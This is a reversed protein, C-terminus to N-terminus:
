QVGLSSDPAWDDVHPDGERVRDDGQHLGGPNGHQSAIDVDGALMTDIGERVLAEGFVADNAVRRQVLEGFNRTM